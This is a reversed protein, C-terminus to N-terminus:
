LVSRHDSPVHLKHFASFEVFNNLRLRIIVYCNPHLMKAASREFLEQRDFHKLQKQCHAILLENVKACAQHVTLLNSAKM